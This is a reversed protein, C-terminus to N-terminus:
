KHFLIFIRIKNISFNGNLSHTLSSQTPMWIQGEETSLCNFHNCWELDSYAKLKSNLCKISITYLM